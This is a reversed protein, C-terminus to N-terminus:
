QPQAHDPKSYLEPQWKAPRVAPVSQVIIELGKQHLQALAALEDRLAFFTDALRVSRDCVAQDLQNGLNLAKLDLGAAAAELVGALNKFILLVRKGATERGALLGALDRPSTFHAAKIEPPLGLLMVKQAWPDDATDDDAVIIVEAKLHPVWAASIQGHILKCDVRAWVLTV